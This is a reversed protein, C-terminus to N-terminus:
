LHTLATWFKKMCPWFVNKALCFKPCRDSLSGTIYYLCNDVFKNKSVCHVYTEVVVSIDGPESADSLTSSKRQVAIYGKDSELTKCNANTSSSVCNKLILSRYVARFQM